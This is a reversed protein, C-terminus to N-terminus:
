ARLLRDAAVLLQEDNSTVWLSGGEGYNAVRGQRIRGDLDRFSLWDGIAPLSTAAHGYTEQMGAIAGAAEHAHADM